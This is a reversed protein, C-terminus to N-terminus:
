KVELEEIIVKLEEAKLYYRDGRVQPATVKKRFESRNREADQKRMFVEKSFIAYLNGNSTLRGYAILQYVIM